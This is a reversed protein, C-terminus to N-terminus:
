KLESSAVPQASPSQTKGSKKAEKAERKAVKKAEKAEKEADKKADRADEAAAKKAEKADQAAQARAAAEGEQHRKEEYQQQTLCHGGHFTGGGDVCSSEAAQRAAV